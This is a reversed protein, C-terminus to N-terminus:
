ASHWQVSQRRWEPAGIPSSIADANDLAAAAALAEGYSAQFGIFEAPQWATVHGEPGVAASFLRTFYGGGIIMDGIKQGSKVESFALTDAAHRAADRARDETTRIPSALAAEYAPATQASAISLPATAALSAAVIFALFPRM